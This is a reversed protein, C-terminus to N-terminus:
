IPAKPDISPLDIIALCRRNLGYRGFRTALVVVRKVLRREEDPVKRPHRHTTRRHDLVRCARRESVIQPGLARRVHEVSRRRRTPSLLKPTRRRSPHSQRARRRGAVTQAPNNEQELEKFRKAQDIKMGGYQKRWRYYTKDSVELLRCVEPTSLGQGILM